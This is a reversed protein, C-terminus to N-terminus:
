NDLLEPQLLVYDCFSLRKVLDHSEVNEIATHCDNDNFSAEPYM